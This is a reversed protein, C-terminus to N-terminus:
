GALEAAAEACLLLITAADASPLLVVLAWRGPRAADFRASRGTMALHRRAAAQRALEPTPETVPCRRIGAPHSGPNSSGDDCEHDPVTISCIISDSRSVGRM